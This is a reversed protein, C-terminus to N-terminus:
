IKWIGVWWAPLLLGGMAQPLCRLNRPLKATGQAIIIYLIEISLGFCPRISKQRSFLTVTKKLTNIEVLFFRKKADYFPKRSSFTNCWLCFLNRNSQFLFIMRFSYPMVTAYSLNELLRGVLRAAALWGRSAALLALKWSPYYAMCRLVPRLWQQLSRLLHHAGAHLTLWVFARDIGSDLVRAPSVSACAVTPEWYLLELERKLESWLRVM